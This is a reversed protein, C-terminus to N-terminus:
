PKTEKETPPEASLEAIQAELAVIARSDGVVMQELISCEKKRKALLRERKKAHVKTRVLRGELQRKMSM